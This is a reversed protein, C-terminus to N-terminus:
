PRGMAEPSVVVGPTSHPEYGVFHWHGDKGLELTLLEYTVRGDSLTTTYDVDTYLGDPITQSHSYQLRVVASWGRYSVKGLLQRTHSLASIFGDQTFRAKVFPVADQWVQTYQHQDIQQMVQSAADLIADASSGPEAGHALTAVVTL